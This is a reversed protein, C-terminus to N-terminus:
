FFKYSAGVRIVDVSKLNIFDQPNPGIVPVSFLRKDDGFAYHLYEARLVINNLWTGFLAYEVGAGFVIGNTNFSQAAASIAGNDNLIYNYDFNAGGWGATVYVLARDHAVGVRGRVSWLSKTKAEFSVSDIDGPSAFSYARSDTRNAWSYDGEVGYVISGVQYNCGGQLGGVVGKPSLNDTFTFEPHTNTDDFQIQQDYNSRGYGVHGGVYCGTWSFLSVVVPRYAPARIALDAAMASGSFLGTLVVGTLLLKKM